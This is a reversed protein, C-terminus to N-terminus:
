HMIQNLQWMLFNSNKQSTYELKGTTLMEHIIKQLSKLFINTAQSTGTHLLIIAYKGLFESSMTCPPLVQILLLMQCYPSINTAYQVLLM